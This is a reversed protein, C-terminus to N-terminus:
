YNKEWLFKSFIKEAKWEGCQGAQRACYFFEGTAVYFADASEKGVVVPKHDRMPFLGIGGLGDGSRNALMQGVKLLCQSSCNSWRAPDLLVLGLESQKKYEGPLQDAQKTTYLHDRLTGSPL